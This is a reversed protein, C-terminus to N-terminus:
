LGFGQELKEYYTFCVDDGDTKNKILLAHREKNNKDFGIKYEDAVM